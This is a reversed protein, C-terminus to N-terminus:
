KRSRERKQPRHPRIRIKGDERAALGSADFERVIRFRSGRTGHFTVRPLGTQADTSLSLFKARSLSVSRVRFSLQEGFVDFTEITGAPDAAVDFLGPQEADIEHSETLLFSLERSAGDVDAHAGCMAQHAREVRLFVEHDLDPLCPNIGARDAVERALRLLKVVPVVGMFAEPDDFRHAPLDYDRGPPHLRVAVSARQGLAEVFEAMEEFYPLDLIPTGDWLDTQLTLRLRLDLRPGPTSEDILVSVKALGGHLGAEFRTASLAMTARGSLNRLSALIKAGKKALLTVAVPHNKAIQLTTAVVGVDAFAPSGTFSVEGPAFHVPEGRRLLGLKERIDAGIPSAVKLGLTVPERAGIEYTEGTEDASARVVLRPDLSELRKRHAVLAGVPSAPRLESTRRVAESIAARLEDTSRFDNALPVSITVKDQSRWDRDSLKDLAYAQLHVFWARDTTVDAVVLLVPLLETDVYQALRAVELRFHVAEGVISVERAGKLQVAARLPTPRELAYVTVHYDIGYDPSVEQTVWEAPIAGEFIRKALEEIIHQDTRV